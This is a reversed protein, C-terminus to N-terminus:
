NNLRHKFGASSQPAILVYRDGAMPSAFPFKERCFSGSNQKVAMIPRVIPDIKTNRNLEVDIASQHLYTM